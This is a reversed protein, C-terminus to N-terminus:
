KNSMISSNYPMIQQLTNIPTFKRGILAGISQAFHYGKFLSSNNANQSQYRKHYDPFVQLINKKKLFSQCRSVNLFKDFWKELDHGIKKVQKESMRTKFVVFCKFLMETAMRCNLIARKNPCNELLLTTASSLEEYGANLLDRGFADLNKDKCLKNYACGFDNCDVWFIVYNRLAKKDNALSNKIKEPMDYLADIANISVAGFVIPINIGWFTSDYYYVGRHLHGIMQSGAKTNSEFWKFIFEAEGSPIIISRKTRQYIRKFAEMPRVRPEIEEKCFEENLKELESESIV